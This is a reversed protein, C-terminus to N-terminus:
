LHLVILDLNQYCKPILVICQQEGCYLRWERGDQDSHATSALNEVGIRIIMKKWKLQFADACIDTLECNLYKFQFVDLIIVVKEKWALFWCSEEVM